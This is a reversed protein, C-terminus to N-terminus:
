PEDQDSAVAWLTLRNHGEAVRKPKAPLDIHHYIDGVAFYQAPDLMGLTQNERRPFLQPM